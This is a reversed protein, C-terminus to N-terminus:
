TRSFSIDSFMYKLAESLKQNVLNAGLGIDKPNFDLVMKSVSCKIYRCMINCESKSFSLAIASEMYEYTRVNGLYCWLVFSYGDIGVHTIASSISSAEYEGEGNLLKEKFYDQVEELKEHINM